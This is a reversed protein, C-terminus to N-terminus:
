GNAAVAGKYLSMYKWALNALEESDEVTTAFPVESEYRDWFDNIAAKAKKLEDVDM